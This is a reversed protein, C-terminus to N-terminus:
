MFIFNLLLPSIFSSLSFDPEIIFGLRVISNNTAESSDIVRKHFNEAGKKDVFKLLVKTGGTEEDNEINVITYEEKTYVQLIEKVQEEELDKKGFVIEVFESPKEIWQTTVTINEAPMREPNPSWGNFVYGEKTLNETYVIAENFNFTRM